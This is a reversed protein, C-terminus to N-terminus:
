KKKQYHRSDFGPRRIQLWSSQGSSWLSWEAALINKSRLKNGRWFRQKCIDAAKRQLCGLSWHSAISTIGSSTQEVSWLGIIFSCPVISSHYSALYLQQFEYSFIRSSTIEEVMFRDCIQLANFDPNQQPFHPDPRRLKRAVGMKM